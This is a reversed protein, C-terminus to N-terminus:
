DRRFVLWTRTVGAARNQPLVSHTPRAALLTLGAAEGRAIERAPDSPFCPRRPAGEGHRLSYLLVGGPAILPVIRALALTREDEELHHWVGSMIVRGFLGGRATLAPLDPLADKLWAIRPSTHRAMGGERLTDTPEVALVSHGLSAFWAADRGTGAGIDAIRAPAQPLFEAVPAYVDASAVSEFLDLMGPSDIVYGELVSDASM